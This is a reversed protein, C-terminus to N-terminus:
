SFEYKKNSPCHLHAAYFINCEHRIIIENKKTNQTLLLLSTTRTTTGWSRMKLEDHKKKESQPVRGRCGTFFWPTTM